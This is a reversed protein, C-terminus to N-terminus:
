QTENDNEKQWITFTNNETCSMAEIFAESNFNPLSQLKELLKDSEKVEQPIVCGSDKGHLVWYVDEVFPGLDNTMIDVKDLDDWKVEEIIGDDRKCSIKDKTLTIEYLESPRKTDGSFIQKIKKFLSM